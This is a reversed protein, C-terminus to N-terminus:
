GQRVDHVLRLLGVLQDVIIRPLKSWRYITTKGQTRPATRVPTEIASYGKKCARITFEAWFSYKLAGIHPLVDRVVDKSVIRFGTDVDKVPLRFLLSVLLHFVKSIFMRYPPDYREAREGLVMDYQTAFKYTRWFESAIAQGDSDFIFVLESELESLGTKM